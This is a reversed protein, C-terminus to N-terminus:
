KCKRKVQEPDYINVKAAPICPLTQTAPRDPKRVLAFAKSLSEDLPIVMGISVYSDRRILLKGKGGAKVTGEYPTTGLRKNDLFVEAGPPNSAITLTITKAEPPVEVNSADAAPAAPAADAPPTVIQAQGSAADSSVAAPADAPVVMPTVADAGPDVAAQNGSSSLGIAIAIATGLLGLGLLIWLGLRRPPAVLQQGTNSTQYDAFGGSPPRAAYPALAPQSQSAGFAPVSPQSPATGWGQPPAPPAVNAGSGWGPVPPPNPVPFNRSPSPTPEPRAFVPQSPEMRAKITPVGDGVDGTAAMTTSYPGSPVTPKVVDAYQRLNAPLLEAAMFNPQITPYSKGNWAAEDSEDEAEYNNVAHLPVTPQQPPLPHNSGTGSQLRLTPIGVGGRSDNTNSITSEKPPYLSSGAPMRDNSPALWPEPVEGFTARMFRGLSMTSMSIRSSSSFNELAELLAGATQYRQTPDVALAKMVIAQLGAPYDSVLRSPLVVDGTVIRHMTDFDSEARFCRHQTTIEYLIIGLAFVDSRRDVDRGRCQEPSMYAFKGKIVGSVTEASRAAAKAIGFDLVKISGDYGIMINSPSVDRHVIGLPKGDPGRREHAHHLGAAAGGVIALGLEYPIRTGAAGATALVSRLDQGHVFEMALFHIGADEGVDFVQAVNQHNLSSALRAEDLFMNIAITDNAKEPLILKLVVHREFAGIGTSRGVYIRAM